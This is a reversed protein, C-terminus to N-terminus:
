QCVGDRHVALEAQPRLISISITCHAALGPFCPNKNLKICKAEVEGEFGSNKDVISFTRVKKLAYICDDTIRRVKYVSSFSGEGIKELPIFNVISTCIQEYNSEEMGTKQM